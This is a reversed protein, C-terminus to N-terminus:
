TARCCLRYGMGYWYWCLRFLHLCHCRQTSGFLIKKRDLTWTLWYKLNRRADSVLCYCLSHLCSRGVHHLFLFFFCCPLGLSRNFLLQIALCSCCLRFTKWILTWYSIQLYLRFSWSIAYRRWFIRLNWLHM